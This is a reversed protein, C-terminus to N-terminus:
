CSTVFTPWRLFFTVFSPCRFSPSVVVPCAFPCRVNALTRDRRHKPWARDRFIEVSVRWPSHMSTDYHSSPMHASGRELSQNTM